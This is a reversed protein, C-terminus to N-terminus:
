KKRLKSKWKKLEREIYTNYKEGCKKCRPNGTPHIHEHGLFGGIIELIYDHECEYTSYSAYAVM